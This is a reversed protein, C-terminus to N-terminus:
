KTDEEEGDYSDWVHHSLWNLLVCCLGMWIYISYLTFPIGFLKPEIQNLAPIFYPLLCGISYVLFLWQVNKKKKM